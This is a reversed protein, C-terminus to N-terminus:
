LQAAVVAILQLVNEDVGLSVGYGCGTVGDEEEGLAGDTTM